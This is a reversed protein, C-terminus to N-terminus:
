SVLLIKRPVSETSGLVRQIAQLAAPVRQETPWRMLASWAIAVVNDRALYDAGELGLLAFYACRALHAWEDWVECRRELHGIGELHLHRLLALSVVPTPAAQKRFYDHYNLMRDTFTEVPDAGEIECHLWLEGAPPAGPLQAADATVFLQVVLDAVHLEGSVVDAIQEQQRWICRDWDIRTEWAPWRLAVILRIFEQVFRKLRSDHEPM